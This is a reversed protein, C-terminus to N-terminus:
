VHLPVTQMSQNNERRRTWGLIRACVPASRHANIAKIHQRNIPCLIIEIIAKAGGIFKVRNDM